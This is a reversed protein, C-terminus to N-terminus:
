EERQGSRRWLRAMWASTSGTRASDWAPAAAASRGSPRQETPLSLLPLEMGVMYYPDPKERYSVDFTLRPGGFVHLAARARFM